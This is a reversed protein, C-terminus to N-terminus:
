NHVAYRGDQQLMTGKETTQNDNATHLVDGLLAFEIRKIKKGKCREIIDFACDIFRQRAINLDYDEGTENRWSLLGFHPDAYAVELVYGDKDEQYTKVPFLPEFRKEDFFKDVEELTIEVQKKPKVTLKSQCFTKTEGGQAQGQWANSTFWAVEWESPKLNHAKM